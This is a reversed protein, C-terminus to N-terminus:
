GVNSSMTAASAACNNDDAEVLISLRSMNGLDLHDDPERVSGAAHDSSEGTSFSVKPIFPLIDRFIGGLMRYGSGKAYEYFDRVTEGHTNFTDVQYMVLYTGAPKEVIQPSVVNPPEIKSYYVGENFRGEELHEKDLYECVLYPLMGLKSEADSKQHLIEVFDDGCLRDSCLYEKECREIIPTNLSVHEAKQIEQEIMRLTMEAIDIDRRRADLESLYTDLRGIVLRTDSLGLYEQIDSLSINASRLTKIIAFQLIQAQSYYRFGHEDVYAPKLIGLEDYYMVMSKKVGCAKAFEGCRM